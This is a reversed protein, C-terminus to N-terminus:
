DVSGMRPAVSDARDASSIGIEIWVGWAPLSKKGVTRPTNDSIEIWVGWAPLSSSTKEGAAIADKIEIWVGWAPLSAAPPIKQPPQWIEIWVGWAPLSMMM